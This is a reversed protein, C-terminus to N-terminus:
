KQRIKNHTIKLLERDFVTFQFFAFLKNLFFGVHYIPYFIANETLESWSRGLSVNKMKFNVM